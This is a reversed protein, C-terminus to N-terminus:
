EFGLHPLWGLAYHFLGLREMSGISRCCPSQSMTQQGTWFQEQTGSSLSRSGLTAVDLVHPTKVPLPLVWEGQENQVANVLFPLPKRRTRANHKGRIVILFLPRESVGKRLVPGMIHYQLRRTKGRVDLKLKRWKTKRNQWIDQPASARDGYKRNAHADEPPLYHLVRNKASRAMLIVGDPLYKWLNITDYGGDAVMM